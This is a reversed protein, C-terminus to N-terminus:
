SEKAAEGALRSEEQLVRKMEEALSRALPDDAAALAAAAAAM